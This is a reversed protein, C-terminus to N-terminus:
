GPCSCLTKAEMDSSSATFLTTRVAGLLVKLMAPMVMELTTIDFGSSRSRTFAVTARSM